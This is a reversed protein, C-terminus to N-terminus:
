GYPESPGGTILDCRPGPLAAKPPHHWLFFDWEDSLSAYLRTQPWPLICIPSLLLKERLHHLQANRHQQMDTPASLHPEDDRQPFSYRSHNRHGVESDESQEEEGYCVTTSVSLVLAKRHTQRLEETM